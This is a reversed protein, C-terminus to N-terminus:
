GVASASQLDILWACRREPKGVATVATVNNGRFLVVLILAVGDFAHGVEDVRFMYDSGIQMQEYQKERKDAVANGIIEGRDLIM